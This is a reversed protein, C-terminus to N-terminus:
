QRFITFTLDDPAAPPDVVGTGGLLIRAEANARGAMGKEGALLLKDIRRAADLFERATKAGALHGLLAQGARRGRESRRLFFLENEWPATQRLGADAGKKNKRGDVEWRMRM